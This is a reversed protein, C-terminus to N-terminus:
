WFVREGVISENGNGNQLANCYGITRLVSALVSAPNRIQSYDRDIGQENFAVKALFISGSVSYRYSAKSYLLDRSNIALLALIDLNLIKALYL